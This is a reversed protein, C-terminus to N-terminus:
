SSNTENGFADSRRGMSTRISIYLLAKVVNQIVIAVTYLGTHNGRGFRRSALWPTINGRGGLGLNCDRVRFVFGAVNNYRCQIQREVERRGGM